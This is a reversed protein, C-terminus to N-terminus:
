GFRARRHDRQLGRLAGDDVRADRKDPLGGDRGREGSASCRAGNHDGVAGSRTVTIADALSIWEGDEEAQCFLRYGDSAYSGCYTSNEWYLVMNTVSAPAALTVGIYDYPDTNRRSSQCGTNKKGDNINEVKTSWGFSFGESTFATGFLAVNLDAGLMQRVVRESVDGPLEVDLGLERKILQAFKLGYVEGALCSPHGNDYALGGKITGYSKWMEPWVGFSLAGAIMGGIVTGLHRGM